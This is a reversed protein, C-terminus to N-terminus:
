QGKYVRGEGTQWATKVSQYLAGLQAETMVRYEIAKSHTTLPYKKQVMDQVTSGKQSAANNATELVREAIKATNSDPGATTAPSIFYFRALSQGDTDVTVEDVIVAADLVYRHRSVSTIRSLAVVYNGGPMSAEWFGRRGRQDNQSNPNNPNNPPQNPDNPDATQSFGLGSFAVMGSLVLIQLKM